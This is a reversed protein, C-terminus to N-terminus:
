VSRLRYQDLIGTVSTTNSSVAATGAYTVKLDGVQESTVTGQEGGQRYSDAAIAICAGEIDAPVPATRTYSVQVYTYAVPLDLRGLSTWEYTTADLTEWADARNNRVKVATVSAINTAKLWITGGQREYLEDTLTQTGAAFTQGTYSEIFGTARDLLDALYTDQATDTIRLHSKLQDLTAYAM